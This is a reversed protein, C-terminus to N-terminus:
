QYFIITDYKEDILKRLIYKEFASKDEKNILYKITDDAAFENLECNENIGEFFSYEIENKLDKFLKFVDYNSMLLQITKIETIKDESDVIRELEDLFKNDDFQFVYIITEMEVVLSDDLRETTRIYNKNLTKAIEIARDKNDIIKNFM